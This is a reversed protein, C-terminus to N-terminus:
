KNIITKLDEEFKLIDEEKTAWSTVFRVLYNSNELKELSLVSYKKSIENFMEESMIPFQQNSYSDVLLEINNELFIKKLKMSMENSYKGIEFYLSEKFLENFQIGLLRGKALLAGKQKMSFEFDIANKKDFFVVAEGFLAGCKTGGIYMVDCLDKYDSLSIDNYSSTLASALRAGDIYFFLGKEKCLDYIAKLEAKKYLMGIENPNSLYVMKPQVMHCSEHTDLVKNILEPTIKGNEGVCELVKHGTGEIAGTEHTNIHGISTSIVGQYPRLLHSIVLLNTQTGGVTFRIYSDKADLLTKLTEKAKLSFEDEGYGDSQVINTKLLAEMIIPHAGESYDNKFSIM